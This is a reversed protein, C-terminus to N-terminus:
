SSRRSRWSAGCERARGWVVRRVTELEQESIRQDDNKDSRATHALPGQRTSENLRVPVEPQTPTPRRAFPSRALLAILVVEDVAGGELPRDILVCKEFPGLEVTVEVAGRLVNRGLATVHQELDLDLPGLLHQLPVGARDDKQDQWRGHFAELLSQAGSAVIVHVDGIAQLTGGRLEFLAAFQRRKHDHVVLHLSRTLFNERYQSFETPV